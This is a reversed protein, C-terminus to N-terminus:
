STRGLWVYFSIHSKFIAVVIQTDIGPLMSCLANVQLISKLLKSPRCGNELVICSCVNHEYVWGRRKARSVEFDFAM